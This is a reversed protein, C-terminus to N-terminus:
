EEDEKEPVDGIFEFDESNGGGKDIGFECEEYPDVDHEACLEKWREWNTIMHTSM